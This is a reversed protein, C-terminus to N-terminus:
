DTAGADASQNSEGLIELMEFVPVDFDDNLFHTFRM